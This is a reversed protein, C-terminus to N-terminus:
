RGLKRIAGVIGRAGCAFWLGVLITVLYGVLWAIAPFSIWERGPESSARVIFFLQNILPTLTTVVFFLGMLSLFMSQWEEITITTGTKAQEEANVLRQGWSGAKAFLIAGAVTPGVIPGIGNTIALALPPLGEVFFYSSYYGVHSIAYVFCLIAIIKLALESVQNITMPIERDGKKPRSRTPAVSCM